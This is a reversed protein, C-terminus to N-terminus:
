GGERGGGGWWWGALIYLFLSFGLSISNGGKESNMIIYTVTVFRHNVFLSSIISSRNIVGGRKRRRRRRRRRGRVRGSQFYYITPREREARSKRLGGGGGLGSIERGPESIQRWSRIHQHDSKAMKVQSTPPLHRRLSPPATSGNKARRLSM